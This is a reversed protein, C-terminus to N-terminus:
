PLTYVRRATGGFIQEREAASLQATLQEAADAVAEYSAALVVGRRAHGM